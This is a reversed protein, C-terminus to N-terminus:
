HVSNSGACDNQLKRKERILDRIVVILGEEDLSPFGTVADALAEALAFSYVELYHREDNIDLENLAAVAAFKITATLSQLAEIMKPDNKM